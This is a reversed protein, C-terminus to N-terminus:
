YAYDLKDDTVWPAKEGGGHIWERWTANTPKEWYPKHIPDPPLAADGIYPGPETTDSPPSTQIFPSSPQGVEGLTTDGIPGPTTDWTDSSSGTPSANADVFPSSVYGPLEYHSDPATAVPEPQPAPVPEVLENALEAAAKVEGIVSKFSAVLSELKTRVEQERFTSQALEAELAQIRLSQETIAANAKDLAVQTDRVRDKQFELEVNARDREAIVQPLEQVAKAGALLEAFLGHTNPTDYSMQPKEMNADTAVCTASVGIEHITPPQVIRFM